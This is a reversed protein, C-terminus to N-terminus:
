VNVVVGVSLVVLPESPTAAEDGCATLLPPVLWVYGKAILRPLVM